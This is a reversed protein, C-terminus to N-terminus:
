SSEVEHHDVEGDVMLEEEEPPEAGGVADRVGPEVVDRIVSPEPHEGVVAWGRPAVGGDGVVLPIVDHYEAVAVAPVVAVGLVGPYSEGRGWYPWWM